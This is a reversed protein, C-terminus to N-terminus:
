VKRKKNKALGAKCIDDIVMDLVDALKVMDCVKILRRGNIMDSLEQATMGAEHAVYVHKLGKDTIVAKLGSAFPKNAEIAKM